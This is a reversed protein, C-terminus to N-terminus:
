GVDGVEAKLKALASKWWRQVTRDSVGLLEAIRNEPWGHYFRLGVVEREEAPLKEVAEHFRGWTELDDAAPVAVAPAPEWQANSGDAPPPAVFHRGPTRYYRALDLLERRIQVAALAFFERTTAPTVEELARLLRLCATQYVDGTDAYQRVTPYRSLMRRALEQLRREVAVLLENRAARDGAQIRQVWGEIAVSDPESASM